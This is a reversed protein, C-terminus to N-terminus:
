PERSVDLVAGVECSDLACRDSDFGASREPGRDRGNRRLEDEAPDSPAVCPERAEHVHQLTPRREREGSM